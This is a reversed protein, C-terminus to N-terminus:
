QMQQMAHLRGTIDRFKAVDPQRRPCGGPQKTCKAVMIERREKRKKPVAFCWAVGFLILLAAIFVGGYRWDMWPRPDTFPRKSTQKLNSTDIGQSRLVDMGVSYMLEAELSEQYVLM